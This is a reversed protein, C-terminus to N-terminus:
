RALAMSREAAEGAGPASSAPSDAFLPHPVSVRVVPREECTTSTVLRPKAKGGDVEFGITGNQVRAAGGPFSRFSLAVASAVQRVCVSDDRDILARVEAGWVEEAKYYAAARYRAEDESCPRGLFRPVLREHLPDIAPWPAIAVGRMREDFPGLDSQTLVKVNGGAGLDAILRELRRVYALTKAIPIGNVFEAVANNIVVVIQAGPAYIRSIQRHFRAAQYVLALDTADVEFSLPAAQDLPNARYGGHYLLHLRIPRGADIARAFRARAEPMFPAVKSKSQYNFDRGILVGLLAAGTAPRREGEIREHGFAGRTFAVCARLYADIAAAADATALSNCSNRVPEGPSVVPLFLPPRRM